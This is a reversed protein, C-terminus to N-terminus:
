WDPRPNSLLPCAEGKGVLGGSGLHSCLASKVDGPKRERM